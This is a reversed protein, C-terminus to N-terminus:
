RAQKRYFVLHLTTSGNSTRVSRAVILSQGDKSFKWEDKMKIQGSGLGSDENGGLLLTLTKAKKGWSAALTADSQQQAGLRGSSKTGDMFFVADTPYLTFGDVAARAAGVDAGGDGGRRRGGPFGGGPLGIRGMRGMGGGPYGGRGPYGGGTSSGGPYGTGEGGGNPLNLPRSRQLNGEVFTKVSLKDSAQNVVMRYNELGQPLNKSQTFDLLWTGSFNAPKVPEKAGASACCLILLLCCLTVRNM